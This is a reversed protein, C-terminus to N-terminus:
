NQCIFIFAPPINLFTFKLEVQAFHKQLMKYSTLSYQFQIFMGKKSLLKKISGVIANETGSPMIALPISSIVYDAEAVKRKTLEESVMEASQNIVEMRPDKINGLENLFEKNIEFLFLRSSSKMRKLIEKTIAGTGPGLEIIIEAKSFDVPELMKKVLHQSSPTISAVNKGHKLFASFFAVKKRM